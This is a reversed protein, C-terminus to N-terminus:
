TPCLNQSYQTCFLRRLLPIHCSDVSLQISFGTPELRDVRLTGPGEKGVICWQPGAKEGQM